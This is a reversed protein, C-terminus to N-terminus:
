TKFLGSGYVTVEGPEGERGSIEIRAPLLREIVHANTLLHRTIAAVQLCSEGQALALPLLLQDALHCDVPAQGRHFKMFATCADRAVAEAPKGKAGLASFGAVGHEYEASLWFSAGPGGGPLDTNEARAIRIGHSELIRAAQNLMRPGIDPRLRCLTVTCSLRVLAGRETLTLPRLRTVPQIRAAMLGGGHPYFGCRKTQVQGHVGCRALTPLYVADIYDASPSWPVHTGGHLLLASEGGAMALPLLLTQLILTVSGASGRGAAAAVDFTYRGPQPRRRPQFVMRTSGLAAGDVEADCIAALAFLNTLHQPALGPKKRNARIHTISVPENALVALSLATRVIQGGGEGYSGDITRM